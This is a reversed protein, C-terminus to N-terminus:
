QPMREPLPLNIFPKEKDIKNKFLSLQNQFYNLNYEQNVSIQPDWLKWPAQNSEWLKELELKDRLTDM